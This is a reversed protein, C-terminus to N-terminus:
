GEDVDAAYPTVFSWQQSPLGAEVPNREVYVVRSQVKEPSDLFVQWGGNAWPSPVRGRTDQYGALPHRGEKTLRRTAARKFFGILREITQGHRAVVLHVHDPMIACAHVVIDLQRIVKAMGRAVALAQRGDFKVAPYRLHAKARRRHTDDHPRDALSQRTNVKTAPGFPQLDRAWVHKSYSGRPDNPLWFGYAAFVAHYALIM